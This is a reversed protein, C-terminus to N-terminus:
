GGIRRFEPRIAWFREVETVIQLIRDVTEVPVPTGDDWSMSSPLYFYDTSLGRDVDLTLTRGEYDVKVADRGANRVIVGSDHQAVQNELERVSM